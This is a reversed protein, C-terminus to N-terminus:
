KWNLPNIATPVSTATDNRSILVVRGPLESLEACSLTAPIPFVNTLLGNSIIALLPWSGLKDWVCTNQSHSFCSWINIAKEFCPLHDNEFLKFAEFTLPM